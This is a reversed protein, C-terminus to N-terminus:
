LIPFFKFLPGHGSWSQGINVHFHPAWEDRLWGLVQRREELAPFTRVSALVRGRAHSPPGSPLSVELERAMSSNFPMTSPVIEVALFDLGSVTPRPRYRHQFYCARCTCPLKECGRPRRGVTTPVISSMGGSPGGRKHRGLSAGGLTPSARLSPSTKPRCQGTRLPPRPSQPPRAFRHCEREQKGIHQAGFASSAANRDESRRISRQIEGDSRQQRTDSGPPRMSVDPFILSAETVM